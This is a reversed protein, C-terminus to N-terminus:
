ERAIRGSSPKLAHEAHRWLVLDEPEDLDLALRSSRVATFTLGCRLADARHLEYSGTQGFRTPARAPLRLILANTQREHRDPAAVVDHSAHAMVLEDIERPGIAPLDSM